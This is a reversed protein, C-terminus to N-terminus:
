AQCIMYEIQVPATHAIVAPATATSKFYGMVCGGPPITITGTGSAAPLLDVNNAPDRNIIMFWGLTTVGGLPLATGGSTTPVSFTGQYFGTGTLTWNFALLQLLQNAVSGTGLNYQLAANITLTDSM